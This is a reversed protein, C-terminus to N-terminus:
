KFGAAEVTMNYMGPPITPISYNGSDNSNATRSLGTGQNRITIKANPVVSGSPDSIVGSINANDSQAFAAFAVLILCTAIRAWNQVTKM